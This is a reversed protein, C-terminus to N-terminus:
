MVVYESTGRRSVIMKIFYTNRDRAGNKRYKKKPIQTQTQIQYKRLIGEGTVFNSKYKYKNRYKHKYKINVELMNVQGRGAVNSFLVM